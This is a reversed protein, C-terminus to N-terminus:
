GQTDFVPEKDIVKNLRSVIDSIRIDKMRYSVPNAILRSTIDVIKEYEVLGNEQLTRGTSVIDVIRDSLGIIPALEISGNLKIIEM